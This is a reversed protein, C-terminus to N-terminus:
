MNPAAWLWELISHQARMILVDSIFEEGGSFVPCLTGDNIEALDDVIEKNV